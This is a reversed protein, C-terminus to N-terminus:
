AMRKFRKIRIKTVLRAEDTKPGFVSRVYNKVKLSIDVMGTDKEYLLHNRRIRANQIPAIVTLGINDNLGKLQILLAELSAVKLDTENPAYEPVVKLLEIYQDFYNVQQVFSRHSNSVWDKDAPATEDTETQKKKKRHGM